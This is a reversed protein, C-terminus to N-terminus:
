RCGGAAAHAAGSARPPAGCARWGRRHTATFVVQATRSNRFRAVTATRDSLFTGYRGRLAGAPRCEIVARGSRRTVQCGLSAGEVRVTDGVRLLYQPPGGGPQAGSPPPPLEPVPVPTGPVPLPPSPPVPDALPRSSRALATTALVVAALLAAALSLKKV